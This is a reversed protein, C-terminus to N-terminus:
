ALEASTGAGFRALALSGALVLLFGVLAYATGGSSPRDGCLVVGLLAAVMTETGVTAATVTVASARQMATASLALGLLGAFAMAYAAPDSLLLQPDLGRLLRAAVALISYCLGALVALRLGAWHGLGSRAVWVALVGVGATAGLLAWRPGDSVPAPAQPGTSVALAVLGAAVVSVALLESRRPRVGLVLVSLLATVGLSAARGAQVLFVPLWRLAYLALAMGAGLLVLAAQYGGRRVLGALFAPSLGEVAHFRRAERAQLVNATGACAASLLVAALAWTM